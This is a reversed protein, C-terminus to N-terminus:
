RRLRNVRGEAKLGSVAVERRTIEVFSQGQIKIYGEKYVQFYVPYMGVETFTPQEEIIYEGDKENSYTVPVGELTEEREEPTLNPNATDLKITVAHEKGDYQTTVSKATVTLEGDIIAYKQSLMEPDSPLAYNPNTLGTVTATYVGQTIKKGVLVVECTEDEEIGVVTVDPGQEFGNFKRILNNWELNIPRPQIRVMAYSVITAYGEREVRYFIPVGDESAASMMIPESSYTGNRSRSYTVVADAPEDVLVTITHPQGDYPGTFGQASAQITKLAPASEGSGGGEPTDEGSTEGTISATLMLPAVKYKWADVGTVDVTVNM